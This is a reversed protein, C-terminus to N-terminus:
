QFWVNSPFNGTDLGFSKNFVPELHDKTANALVTFNFKLKLVTLFVNKLKSKRVEIKIRRFEPDDQKIARAVTWM